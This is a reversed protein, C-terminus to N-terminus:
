ESRDMVQLCVISLFENRIQRLYIVYRIIKVCM